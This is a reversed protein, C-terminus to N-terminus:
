RGISEIVAFIQDAAQVEKAREATHMKVQGDLYGLYHGWGKALRNRSFEAELAIARAGELDGEDLRTLAVERAKEEVLKWYSKDGLKALAKAAHYKTALDGPASCPEAFVTKIAEPDVKKGHLALFIAPRADCSGGAKALAVVQAGFEPCGAAAFSLKHDLNFVEPHEKALAACAVAAEKTPEMAFIDVMRAKKMGCTAECALGEALIPEFEEWASPQKALVMALTKGSEWIETCEETCEQAECCTGEGSKAKPPDAIAKVFLRRLEAGDLRELSVLAAKEIPCGTDGSCEEEAVKKKSDQSPCEDDGGFAVAPAALLLLSLLSSLATPNATRQM